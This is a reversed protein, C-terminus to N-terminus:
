IKRKFGFEFGADSSAWWNQLASGLVNVETISIPMSFVAGGARLGPKNRRLRVELVVSGEPHEYVRLYLYSYWADDDGGSSLVVEDGQERPFNSLRSAFYKFEDLYLRADAAGAYVGNSATVEVLCFGQQAKGKKLRIFSPILNM